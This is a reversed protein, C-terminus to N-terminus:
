PITSRCRASLDTNREGGGCDLEVTAEPGETQLRTQDSLFCFLAALDGFGIRDGSQPDELSARWRHLEGEGTRWLRLLYARYNGERSM